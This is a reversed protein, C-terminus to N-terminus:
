LTLYFYVLILAIDLIVFAILTYLYIPKMTKNNKIKTLKIPRERKKYTSGLKELDERLFYRHGGPSRISKVLGNKDWRRLSDSSVGLITKAQSMSVYNQM